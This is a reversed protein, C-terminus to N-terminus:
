NYDTIWQNESVNLLMVLEAVVEDITQLFSSDLGTQIKSCRAM